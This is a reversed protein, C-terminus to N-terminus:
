HTKIIELRFKPASNEDSGCTDLKLFYVWDNAKGRSVAQVYLYTDLSELLPPYSLHNQPTITIRLTKWPFKKDKDKIVNISKILKEAGMDALISSNANFILAPQVKASLELLFKPNNIKQNVRVEIIGIILFVFGVISTFWLTKEKFSM